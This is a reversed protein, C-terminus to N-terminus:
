AARRSRVAPPLGAARAINRIQATSYGALEQVKSPPVNARLAEVALERVRESVQDLDDILKKRKAGLKRLEDTDM